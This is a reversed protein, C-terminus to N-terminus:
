HAGHQVEAQQGPEGGQRAQWVREPWMCVHACGFRVVFAATAQLTGMPMGAPQGVVYGNEVAYFCGPEGRLARRVLTYAEEGFHVARDRICALTEPMHQRIVELGEEVIQARVAAAGKQAAPLTRTDM